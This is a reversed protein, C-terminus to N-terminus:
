SAAGGPPKITSQGFAKGVSKFTIACAVQKRIREDARRHLAAVEAVLAQQIRAVEDETLARLYAIVHPPLGSQQIDLERLREGLFRAASTVTGTNKELAGAASEKPNM